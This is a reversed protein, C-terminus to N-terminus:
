RISAIQEVSGPALPDEFTESSSREAERYFRIERLPIMRDGRHTRQGSMGLDVDGPAYLYYATRLNLVMRGGMVCSAASTFGQLLKFWEPRLTFWVVINSISATLIMSSYLLTDTLLVDWMQSRACLAGGFDKVHGAITSRSTIHRVYLLMHLFTGAHTSIPHQRLSFRQCRLLKLLIYSCVSSSSQNLISTFPSQAFCWLLSCLAYSSFPAADKFFSGTGAALLTIQTFVTMPYDTSLYLVCLENSSPKVLFLIASTLLFLNSFYRNWLFLVKAFTWRKNWILAVERDLTILHDYLAVITPILQCTRIVRAVFASHEANPPTIDTM